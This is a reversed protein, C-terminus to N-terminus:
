RRQRAGRQTCRKNNRLLGRWFFMSIRRRASAKTRAAQVLGGEWLAGRVEGVMKEVTLGRQKGRGMRWEEEMEREKLAEPLFTESTLPPATTM